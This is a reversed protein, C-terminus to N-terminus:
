YDENDGFLNGMDIDMEEEVPEQKAVYDPNPIMKEM